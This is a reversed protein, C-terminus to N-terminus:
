REMGPWSNSEIRPKGEKLMDAHAKALAMADDYGNKYGRRYSETHIPSGDYLETDTQPEFVNSIPNDMPPDIGHPDDGQSGFYKATM